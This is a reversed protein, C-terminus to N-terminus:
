INRANGTAVISWEAENALATEPPTRSLVVSGIGPEAVQTVGIATNVPVVITLSSPETNTAEPILKNSENSL